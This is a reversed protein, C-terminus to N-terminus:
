TRPMRLGARCDGQLARSEQSEGAVHRHGDTSHARRRDQRDASRRDTRSERALKQWYSSIQAYNALFYDDGFNHGFAEEPSTVRGQLQPSADSPGPVAAILLVCITLLLNRTMVLRGSKIFSNAPAPRTLKPYTVPRGLENRGGGISTAGFRIGLIGCYM